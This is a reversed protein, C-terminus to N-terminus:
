TTRNDSRMTAVVLDAVLDAILDPLGSGRDSGRASPVVPQYGLSFSPGLPNIVGKLSSSQKAAAIAVTSCTGISSSGSGRISSRM